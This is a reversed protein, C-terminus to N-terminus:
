VGSGHLNAFGADLQALFDTPLDTTRYDDLRVYAHVLSVGLAQYFTGFSTNPTVEAPFRFGREPNVIVEDSATYTVTTGMPKPAPVAICGGLLAILILLFLLRQTM